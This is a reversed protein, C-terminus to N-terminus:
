EGGGCCGDIGCVADSGDMVAEDVVVVCVMM